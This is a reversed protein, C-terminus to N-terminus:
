AVKSVCVDLWRLYVYMLGGYICMCGAVKSVCVDLWRLYVYM